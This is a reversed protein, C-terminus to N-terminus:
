LDAKGLAKIHIDQLNRIRNRLSLIKALNNIGKKHEQLLRDKRTCLKWMHLYMRYHSWKKMICLKFNSRKEPEFGQM